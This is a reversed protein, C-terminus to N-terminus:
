GRGVQEVWLRPIMRLIFGTKPSKPPIPPLKEDIGGLATAGRLVIAGSVDAAIPRDFRCGKPLFFDVEV